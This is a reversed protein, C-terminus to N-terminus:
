EWLKDFNSAIQDAAETYSMVLLITRGHVKVVTKEASVCIWKNPNAKERLEQAVKEIDTGEPVRILVSSHAAANIMSESVLTEADKIPDIFAYYSYNDDDPVVNGIPPLDPVDELITQFIQELSLTDGKKEAAAGGCAAMATLLAVCILMTLLRKM